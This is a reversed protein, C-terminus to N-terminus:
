FLSPYSPPKQKFPDSPLEGHPSGNSGTQSRGAKQTQAPGLPGGFDLTVIPVANPEPKSPNGPPKANKSM